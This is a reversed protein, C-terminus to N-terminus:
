PQSVSKKARTQAQRVQAFMLHSVTEREGYLVSLPCTTARKFKKKGGLILNSSKQSLQKFDQILHDSREAWIIGRECLVAQFAQKPFRPVIHCTFTTTNVRVNVFSMRRPLTQVLCSLYTCRRLSDLYSHLSVPGIRIAPAGCTGYLPWTFLPYSLPLYLGYVTWMAHICLSQLAIKALLCHFWVLDQSSVM